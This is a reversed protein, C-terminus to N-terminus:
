RKGEGRFFNVARTKKEARLRRYEDEDLRGAEFDDDLRALDRILEEGLPRRGKRILPYGLALGIFLLLLVPTLRRFMRQFDTRSLPLRSFRVEISDGPKLDRGSFHLYRVGERDLVPEEESLGEVAVEVGRDEIFLAFVDTPFAITQTLTLDPSSYKLSYMFAELRSGPQVAMTDILAGPTVLACCEMLDGGVQMVTAGSPLPFRLVERGGGEGVERSGIYTRDSPNSFLHQEVVVLAGMRLRVEIQSAHIKLVGPDETPEYVKVEVAKSREGPAFSVVPSSYEVGKYSVVAQYSYGPSTDLGIFKFKGQEDAVGKLTNQLSNNFLINLTVALGATSGGGETANVVRGEIIGGEQALAPSSLLLVALLAIAASLKLL